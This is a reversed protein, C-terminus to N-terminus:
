EESSEVVSCGVCSLIAWAGSSFVAAGCGKGYGECSSPFHPFARGDISPESFRDLAMAAVAEVDGPMSHWRVTWSLVLSFANEEQLLSPEEGAPETGRNLEQVDVSGSSERQMWDFLGKM